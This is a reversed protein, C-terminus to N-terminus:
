RDLRAHRVELDPDVTAEGALRQQKNDAWKGAAYVVAVMIALAVLMEIM